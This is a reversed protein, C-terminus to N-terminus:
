KIAYAGKGAAVLLDNIQKKFQAPSMKVAPALIQKPTAKIAMAPAPLQSLFGGIAQVITALLNQILTGISPPLQPLASWFANIAGEAAALADSIKGLLTAKTTSPANLYNNIASSVVGFAAIVEAVVAGAPGLVIGASALVALVSSITGLALPVYTEISSYISSFPCATTTLVVVGGVGASLIKMFGRRAIQM